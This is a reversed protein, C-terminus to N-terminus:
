MGQITKFCSSLIADVKKNHNPKRQHTNSGPVGCLGVTPLPYFPTWGILAFRVQEVQYVHGLGQRFFNDDMEQIQPTPHIINKLKGDISALVQKKIIVSLPRPSVM